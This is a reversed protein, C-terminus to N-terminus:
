SSSSGSAHILSDVRVCTAVPYGTRPPVSVEPPRPVVVVPAVQIDPVHERGRKQRRHLRM